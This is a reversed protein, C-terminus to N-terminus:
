RDMCEENMIWAQVHHNCTVELGRHRLQEVGGHAELMAVVSVIHTRWDVVEHPSQSSLVPDHTAHSPCPIPNMPPETYGLTILM